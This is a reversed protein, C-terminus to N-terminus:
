DERSGLYSRDIGLLVKLSVSAIGLAVGIMIARNGTTVFISMIYITLEDIRFAKLADPIWATMAVGIYTRGLLIIFATGLLLIAELNKARFARFAASAVYFALMAFMTATLPKFAYEYLWWFLNGGSQYPGSWTYKPTHAATFLQYVSKKWEFESRFDALLWDRQGTSLNTGPLKLLDQFITKGRGGATPSAAFFAAMAGAQAGTFTEAQLQDVLDAVTISEDNAFQGIAAQQSNTLEVDDGPPHFPDIETVGQEKEALMECATKAVPQAQGAGDLVTILEEATWGGRLNREVVQQQEETLPEGLGNLEDIFQQIEAESAPRLPPFVNILADRQSRSMPGAMSLQQPSVSYSVVDALSAPVAFGTPVADVDITTTKQSAEYISDVAQQWRTDDSMAALETRSAEDMVGRFSLASHDSYYFAKGRLSEPPQAAEALNEVTCQWELTQKFSKLDEIQNPLIWGRFVIEGQEQSMQRRVSDPLQAEEKEPIEGAIRTVQSEPFAAAPLSAFTEGYFEQDSAPPSGIKGLGAALTLLFAILTVAAYGWGPVRDSIKKLNVKMLNGGGLIFAIAALIDFWVTVVEGWSETAPIFAAAILLFGSITTILLPVTRKM